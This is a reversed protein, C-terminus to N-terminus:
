KGPVFTEYTGDDFFVRIEKVQRRKIDFIKPLEQSPVLVQPQSNRGERRVPASTRVGQFPLLDDTTSAPQDFLSGKYDGRAVAPTGPASTANTGFIDQQTTSNDGSIGLNSQGNDPNKDDGSQGPTPYTDNATVYMEGEGFMLWNVNIQPFARHIAKVHNGTANTRGIYINSLAGPAIGLAEAFEKQTMSLSAQIEKIRNNM